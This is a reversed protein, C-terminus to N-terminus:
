LMLRKAVPWLFVQGHLSTINFLMCTNGLHYIVGSLKGWKDQWM